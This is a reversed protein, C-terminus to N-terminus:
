SGPPRSVEGIMTAEDAETLASQEDSNTVGHGLIEHGRTRFAAPIEPALDYLATHMQAEVPIDIQDFSSCAGSASGTAM